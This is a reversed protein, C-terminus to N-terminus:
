SEMLWINILKIRFENNMENGLVKLDSDTLAINTDDAYMRSAAKKLM